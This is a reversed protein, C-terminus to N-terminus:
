NGVTVVHVTGRPTGGEGTDHHLVGMWVRDEAGAVTWRWYQPADNQPPLSLAHTYRYGEADRHFVLGGTPLDERAYPAGVVVDDGVFTVSTTGNARRFRAEPFDMAVTVPSLTGRADAEYVVVPAVRDWDTVGGAIAVQGRHGVALAGGFSSWSWLGGPPELTEEFRWCGVGDPVFRHVTGRHTSGGVSDLPAGVVLTQGRLALARGFGDGPSGGEPTLVCARVFRGDDDRRYMTVSGTSPLGTADAQARAAVALWPGDTALASGFWTNWVPGSPSLVGVGRWGGRRGRALLWVRAAGPEGVVLTDGSLAVAEGFRGGRRPQPARVRRGVRDEPGEFVYVAGAEPSEGSPTLPAGVALRGDARALSWGFWDRTIPTAAVTALAAALVTLRIPM